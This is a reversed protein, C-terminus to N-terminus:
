PAAPKYWMWDRTEEYPYLPAHKLARSFNLMETHGDVFQIPSWFEDPAQHINRIDSAAKSYHWQYWEPGTGSCGYIRAPPEHMLIYKSPNPVWGESQGALGGSFGKRFGGGRLVTLNGDNYHYSCGITEWNSPKQKEESGCPLIRQGFDRPCRFVESGQLYPWLPRSGALPYEDQFAPQPHRGGLTFGTYKIEGNEEQVYAEPFRDDRSDQSYLSITIGIQRLNNICTTVRAREKSRSLSPLMMSALITIISIVVLLEILTFGREGASAPSPRRFNKAWSM